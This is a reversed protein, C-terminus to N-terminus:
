MINVSLSMWMKVTLLFKPGLIIISCRITLALLGPLHGERAMGAMSLTPGCCLKCKSKKKKKAINKVYAVKLPSKLSSPEKLSGVIDV